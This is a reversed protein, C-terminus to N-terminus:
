QGMATAIVSRIHDGRRGYSAALNRAMRQMLAFNDAPSLWVDAPIDGGAEALALIRVEPVAAEGNFIDVYGNAWAGVVHGPLALAWCDFELRQALLLWLATLTIPLGQRRELVRNMLSNQPHYYNQQDGGFGYDEILVRALAEPDACDHHRQALLDLQERGPTAADAQPRELEPLIWVGEELDIANVYREAIFQGERELLLTHLIRPIRPEQHALRYVKGFLEQDTRLQALVDARQETRNILAYLIEAPSSQM